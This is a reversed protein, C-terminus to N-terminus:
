GQSHSPAGLPQMHDASGCAAQMAQWMCGATTCAAGVVALMRGEAMCM